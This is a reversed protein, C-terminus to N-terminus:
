APDTRGTSTDLLKSAPAAVPQPRAVAADTLRGLLEAVALSTRLQLGRARTAFIFFSLFCVVATLTGELPVTLAQYIGRAYLGPSATATATATAASREIAGFAEIAGAFLGYFGLLGAVGGLVALYGARRGLEFAASQITRDAVRLAHGVGHDVGLLAHEVAQALVSRDGRCFSLADMYRREEFLRELRKGVEPPCFNCERIALACDLTALLAIVLVASLLFGPLGAAKALDWFQVTEPAGGPAPVDAGALAAFFLVVFVALWTATSREAARRARAPGPQALRDNRSM